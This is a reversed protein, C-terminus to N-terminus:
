HGASRLVVSNVGYGHKTELVVMDFSRREHSAGKSSQIELNLTGGVRWQASESESAVKEMSEVQIDQPNFILHHERITPLLASSVQHKYDEYAEDTSFASRMSELSEPWSAFDHSLAKDVAEEVFDIVPREELTFYPGSSHASMPLAAFLAFVYPAIKRM